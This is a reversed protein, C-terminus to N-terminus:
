RRPRGPTKKEPPSPARASPQQVVRPLTLAIEERAKATRLEFQLSAVEARLKQIEEEAQSPTRPPRGPLGPELAALAAEMAEQRLQHFRQECINLDRCAEQLRYTGTMTQLVAKVREKATSSAALQDVYEPGVPIRGRM